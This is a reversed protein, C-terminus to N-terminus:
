VGSPVLVRLASAWLAAAVALGRATFHCEDNRMKGGIADTDPGVVVNSHSSAVNAIASRIADSPGATGCRSSLAAVFPAEIGSSRIISLLAELGRAYEDQPTGLRADAEGQQWVILDPRMRASVSDALLHQLAARLPSTTHTWDAISTSEVALPMFVIERTYGIAHMKEAVQTWLSRHRGTAGPLPDGVRACERGNSILVWTSSTPPPPQEEAGHNGANSQGLVLIVLRGTGPPPCPRVGIAPFPVRQDLRALLAREARWHQTVLWAGAAFALVAVGAFM